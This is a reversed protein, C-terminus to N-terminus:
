RCFPGTRPLGEIFDIIDAKLPADGDFHRSIVKIVDIHNLGDYVKAEAVGGRAQVQEALRESNQPYVTKDESGHQLLLPPVPTATNNLVADEGTFRDPFITILPEEKLPVIGTPAALGVIGAITDCSQVGEASLFAPKLGLSLVNYAGASHGILVLRRDPYQAAAFAVAKANDELFAPYVADPYLRYNPVVVDFGESTFGEALFKYIDKSGSDWSGGHVFVLVPAEARPTEAEYIDLSQRELPGFSIDKAVSFSGGPTIRNLIQVPQCAQLSVGLAVVLAISSLLVPRRLLSKM